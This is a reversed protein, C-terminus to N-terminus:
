TGNGSQGELWACALEIMEDVPDQEADFWHVKSGFRRFWNDQRRVFQRTLRRTQEIATELDHEGKLHEAIQRYGIASLAPSSELDVGRELLAAVEQVWGADLMTEIREDIREYLQARARQLGLFLFSYDPPSKQRQESPPMGTVHHIELARVVRRINRADIREATVPDVQKLQSHLAEPGEIEAIAQMEKRFGPDDAKPPPEWGEVLAAFYQGTGGVLLPVNGREYIEAIARKVADLYRSLSWNETPEAVDILHHSVEQVMATAPKATGIDMGKYLLRSDVSVIEAGVAKALNISLDTKGVATPGILLIVPKEPKM